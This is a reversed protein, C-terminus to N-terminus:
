EYRAKWTYSRSFNRASEIQADLPMRVEVITGEGPESQFDLSASPGYFCELRREVNALGVGRKRGQVYGINSVGAGTDRISICLRADDGWEGGNHELRASVFVDGGQKCPAIGHKVANEVLPQVVLPPIRLKRLDVPVDISVHLREEFRAREIALYSEILDMEEGVTAFDGTPARLVARLLGTLRMLTELAREPATQILYSITTLANFLFHPNLQARLARLEAETALKGIEQERLNRECREHTVRAADIRRALMLAVSELLAVDDSLLQRGGSLEGIVLTFPPPEHTPILVTAVPRRLGAAWQHNEIATERERDAIRVVQSPLLFGDSHERAQGGGGKESGRDNRLWRVDSATFAEALRNCVLDLIEEPIESSAALRALENRLEQYDARRLVITDVFWIIARRLAPYVLATGVWLGLLVGVARPDLDENSGRLRLLPAAIFVYLGFALAVLVVLALARKLFIDAFAFRYDQYLMALVLPLSSHHGILEIFWPDGGSVHQSLHMASVAFVALAVAWLMRRWVPSRRACILLAVTLASFGFTLARLGATSPTEGGISASHFHLLSAIASLAYAAATISRAIISRALGRGARLVSHVVVAPLFGLATFASAEIWASPEGLGWDRAGYIVLAGLNWLLGLLATALLLREAPFLARQGAIPNSPSDSASSLSSDAARVVMALLMAYLVAGTIFGLLNVLGAVNQSNM